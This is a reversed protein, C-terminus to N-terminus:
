HLRTEVIEDVTIGLGAAEKLYYERADADLVEPPFVGKASIKDNVFLKTFLFASQGTLFSEHTIGHKEFAETLGPGNIYNDLCIPKGNKQGQVRVLSAGEELAMGQSLAAKITAPDSPASPTLQCVLDLPVIKVGKVDVPETGLLGMKYFSEALECAPGGYKFNARKLGKFFLGFTVPEEHEHDVMRRPGLGKFDIMEPNNFPPVQNYGGNEYTIPEAAMDGFATEPSWWFPIFANTWIGDYIYIDITELDDLKDAANRAIVNVLGPASGTNILASLGASKFKEDLALQRKVAGVFDIDAVPGSAMDQYHMNNILAAEMLTPNFDPPLGNVILAAGKSAAVIEDLNRADVKVAVAKDLMNEYRKAADLDYDACIIKEVNPEENLRMAITGGQAGTGMVIVTKKM